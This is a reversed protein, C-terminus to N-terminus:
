RDDEQYLGMVRWAKSCFTMWELRSENDDRGALCDGEDFLWWDPTEPYLWGRGGRRRLLPRLAQLADRIAEGEAASETQWRLCGLDEAYLDVM